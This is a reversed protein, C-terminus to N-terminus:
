KNKQLLCTTIEANADPVGDNEESKVVKAVM